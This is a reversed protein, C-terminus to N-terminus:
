RQFASANAYIGEQAVAARRLDVNEYLPSPEPEMTVDDYHPQTEVMRVAPVTTADARRRKSKTWLAATVLVAVLLFTAVVSLVLTVTSSSSSSSSTEAILCLSSSGTVIRSECAASVLRRAYPDLQVQECSVNASPQWPAGKFLSAQSRADYASGNSWRGEGYRTRLGVNYRIGIFSLSRYWSVAPSEISCTLLFDSLEDIVVQRAVPAWTSNRSGSAAINCDGKRVLVDGVSTAKSNGVGCAQTMNGMATM